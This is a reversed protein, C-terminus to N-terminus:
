PARHPAQGAGGRRSQQRHLSLDGADPRAGGGARLRGVSRGGQRAAMRAHWAHRLPDDRRHARDDRLWLYFAVYAHRPALNADHYDGKRTASHGRDPQVAVILKGARIIPFHFAGARVAPDDASDGWTPASRARRLRRATARLAREYEAVSIFPRAPAPRCRRILDAEAPLAGVDYGAARLRRASRWFAARRTSASPMASAAARPPITPCSAPSRGDRARAKPAPAGLRLRSRRCLRHPRGTPAHAIRTFELRESRQTEQKFSIARRPHARRDGASRCEDRSRRRRPRADLGGMAGAGRRGARGAVGARRRRRSRREGEDLRASFATANLIVDFPTEAVAPARAAGSRGCGQPQHCLRAHRGHRAGGSGGRARRGARHRRRSFDLSLLRDARAAGREAARAAAASMSASLRSPVRRRRRRRRRRSSPRHIAPLRRSQGPGGEEFYRWLQRLDAVGFRRPPTSGRTRSAIAPCSRWNFAQARAGYGALEDVGYRWYDMGGLLRVLM